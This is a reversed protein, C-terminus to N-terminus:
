SSFMSMSKFLTEIEDEKKVPKKFTRTKENTKFNINSYEETDVDEEEDSNIVDKGSGGEGVVCNHFNYKKVFKSKEKELHYKTDEIEFNKKKYVAFRKIGQNEFVSFMDVYDIILPSVNEHIKRDIRGIIQVIDSKPSSLILTNLSPIDFGESVLSCTALIIQKTETEKLVDKKMGGIYYGISTFGNKHAYNYMDELHKKRDSLILVHRDKEKAIIELVRKMIFVTRKYYQTINNVMTPIQVKGMYNLVEKKYDEYDSDLLYREVKVVNKGSNKVSYIIDGIFYKVVKILGDTRNPTASLGLMYKSNVRALAKSFVRSPIRHCEDIIVHGFENFANTDFERMSLTQLMGIVIDKEDIDYVAGQITGIKAEPLAFKIREVWQNMLFEKHVIVLTKKKIMSIFYLAMITKGFGCPLSLIGGGKEHYAKMTIEAPIRQEEKLSLNFNLNIDRGELLTNVEPPGFKEFGYFKPLYIKEDNELYIKFPEEEKGFDGNVFPKVTLDSRIASLEKESLINKRIIYGRKAVYKSSNKSM